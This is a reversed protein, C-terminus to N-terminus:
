DILEGTKKAFRKKTVVKKGDVESVEVKFGVRTPTGKHLLMVNSLDIPAEKEIIGGQQHAMSPKQHKKIINVGEVIVRNKKTDVLLVKGEKKAISEKGSIVRVLDGKKIKNAM